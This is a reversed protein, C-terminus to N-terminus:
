ALYADSSVYVSVDIGFTVDGYSQQSSAGCKLINRGFTGTSIFPQWKRKETAFKFIAPAVRGFRRINSCLSSTNHSFSTATSVLCSSM